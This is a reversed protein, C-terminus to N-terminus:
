DIAIHTDIYRNNVGNNYFKSQQWKKNTTVFTKPKIDNTFKGGTILNRLDYKSFLERMIAAFGPRLFPKTNCNSDWNDHKALHYIQTATFWKVQNKELCDPKLREDLFCNPTIQLLKKPNKNAMTLHKEFLIDFPRFDVKLVFLRYGEFDVFFDYKENQLLDLIQQESKFICGMTEEYFERSATELINIEHAKRGGGFDSWKLSDVFNKQYREEGLLFYIDGSWIAYPLIGAAKINNNESYKQNM